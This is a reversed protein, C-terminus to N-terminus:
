RHPNVRSSAPFGYIEGQGVTQHNIVEIEFGKWANGGNFSCTAAQRSVGTLLKM